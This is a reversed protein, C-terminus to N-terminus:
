GKLYRKKYYDSYKSDISKKLKKQNFFFNKEDQKQFDVFKNTLSLEANSSFKLSGDSSIIVCKFAKMNTKDILKELYM